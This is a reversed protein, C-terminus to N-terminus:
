IMPRKPTVEFFRRARYFCVEFEDFFNLQGLLLPVSEARTWAFALNTEGGFEGELSITARLVIARAEYHALNGALQVEIRQEQWVAGLARGVHFPLVNLTAGSDVVGACLLTAGRYALRM